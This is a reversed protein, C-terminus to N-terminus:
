VPDLDLDVPITHGQNARIMRGDESFSFRKKDNQAVVTRLEAESFRHGNTQSKAILEEVPAWGHEDLTIGILEPDHRLVRSLFKSIQKQRKGDM